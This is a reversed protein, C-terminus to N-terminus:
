KHFNNLIHKFECQNVIEYRSLIKKFNNIITDFTNQNTNQTYLSFLKKIKTKNTYQFDYGFSNLFAITTLHLIAIRGWRLRNENPATSDIFSFVCDFSNDIKTKSQFESFSIIQNNSIMANITNSLQGRFLHDKAINKNYHINDFLLLDCFCEQFIRFFKIMQMDKKTSITGDFFVLKDELIKINAYVSLIRYVFSQIYYNEVRYNGNVYHWNNFINDQFNWLRHNLEEASRLLKGKYEALTDKVKKRQESKYDQKLKFVHFISDAVPKFIFVTLISTAASILAILIKDDM